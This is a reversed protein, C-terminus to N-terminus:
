SYTVGVRCVDRSETECDRRLAAGRELWWAARGGCCVACVRWVFDRGVVLDSLGIRYPEALDRCALGAGLVHTVATM